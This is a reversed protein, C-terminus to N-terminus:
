HPELSLNEVISIMKETAFRANKLHSENLGADRYGKLVATYYTLSPLAYCIQDENMVYVMACLLKEGVLVNVYEKRYFHPFGEYYDLMQESEEDIEWLAFPVVSGKQKEITLYYRFILRYDELLGVGVLKATPCRKAMQELNLNSGYALYFSMPYEEEKKTSEKLHRATEPFLRCPMEM